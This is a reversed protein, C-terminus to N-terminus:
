RFPSYANLFYKIRNALKDPELDLEAVSYVDERTMKELNSNQATVPFCLQLSIKDSLHGNQPVGPREDKKGAIGQEETEKGRKIMIRLYSTKEALAFTLANLTPIEVGWHEGDVLVFHTHADGLPLRYGIHPQNPLRTLAEPAV